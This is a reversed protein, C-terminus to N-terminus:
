EPRLDLMVSLSQGDRLIGVPTPGSHCSLLAAFAPPDGIVQGAFTLILDGSKLGAQQAPSNPDVKIIRLAPRSGLASAAQRQPDDKFLERVSIGVVARKVSGTAILQHVVELCASGGLFQGFRNFGAVRGDVGVVVGWDQADSNFLELRSGHSNPAVMLVLSGDAPRADAMRLPHLEDLPKGQPVDLQLITLQTAFDAAVFHATTLANDGVMAPVGEPGISERELYIPILIHGQSDLLLGVNNPSFRDVGHFSVTTKSPASIQGSADLSGGAQIHLATGAEGGRSQFVVTGGPGYTVDWPGPAPPASPTTFGTAPTAPPVAIGPRPVIRRPADTAAPQTTPIVSAHIVISAGQQYAKRNLALQEQVKPDLNEWVDPPFDKDTLKNVWNPPPLQVRVLGQHVDAYLSQTQRSLEEILSSPATTPVLPLAPTQALAALPVFAAIVLISWIANKMKFSTESGDCFGRMYM